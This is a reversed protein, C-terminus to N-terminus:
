HVVGGSRVPWWGCFVWVGCSRIRRDPAGSGTRVNPAPLQSPTRACADLAPSCRRAGRRARHAAQNSPPCRVRALPSPPSSRAAPREAASAGHRDACAVHPCEHTRSPARSRRLAAGRAAPLSATLRPRVWLRNTCPSALAPRLQAAPALRVMGALMAALREARRSACPPGGERRDPGAGHGQQAADGIALPLACALAGSRSRRFPSTARRLDRRARLSRPHVM